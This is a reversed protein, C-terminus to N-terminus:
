TEFCGENSTSENSNFYLGTLNSDHPADILICQVQMYSSFSPASPRYKAGTSTSQHSVFNRHEPPLIQKAEM